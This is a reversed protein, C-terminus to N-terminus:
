PAPSSRVLIGVVRGIDDSEYGRRALYAYLRRRQTPVDFRGLTALKKRAVRELTAEENVHEDGFAVEIAADAVDRAVGRRALEAQLRRRSFGAGAVRSRAFQRAFSADDLFGAQLLRALAAEVQEAPEGKRTLARRLEAVSRARLALINLARDYTRLARAERDLAARRSENLIEGTALELREVVELSVTAAPEGDLYVDFRGPRRPAPLLATVTQAHSLHDSTSM